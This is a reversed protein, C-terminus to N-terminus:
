SIIWLDVIHLLYSVQLSLHVLRTAELKDFTSIKNFALNLSLLSGMRSIPSYPFSKSDFKNNKLSLEELNGLDGISAPLSSLSDNELKLSTLKKLRSLLQGLDSPLKMKKTGNVCLARLNPLENEVTQILHSIEKGKITEQNELILEIGGTEKCEEIVQSFQGGM